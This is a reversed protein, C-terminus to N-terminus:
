VFRVVQEQPITTTPRRFKKVLPPCKDMNHYTVQCDLCYHCERMNIEGTPAIAGIECETACLQCPRGCEKRRKLWDFLRAITPIAIAAGMPCIYRCYVKRSFISALILISAYIVFPWERGFQLLFVTKFPEVEAYQEAVSLSELSWGFLGLLILYKIAWLREHVVYPIPIQPIRLRLALEGLIEQLAGFPCLWGCYIGRGWLLVTAAVFAWLIFIIPDLLFTEWNFNGMLSQVFTLVNVVSLQGKYQWGIFVVTYVLFVMRFNRLFNPYKVLWDQLFIVITLILLSITLINISTSSDEWVQEWPEREEIEPPPEPRDLYKEIPTYTTKFRAFLSDIPGTQRRVLLELEWTQGPDFQHHERVFFVSMEKFHPTGEAYLDNIRYHEIDRFSFENKGQHILIRDFIGGRVYGSGKFSYGNGMIAIASEGPELNEMLWAYESEGLLNKGISPIDLQTYYLGIFRESAEKQSLPESHAAETGAFATEVDENNLQFHRIAGEETLKDWDADEFYQRKINARPITTSAEPDIIGVAVAVKNAARMIALNVVMVTVTAGSVGDIHKIGDSPQGSSIKVQSSVSLDIYQKAFDFLKQEPIGVLLIPEHHELISIGIITGETDIAVLTNVPEGSYAPIPAVDGTEFAYGAVKNAEYITWILPDGAKGSIKSANPFAKKIAPIAPKAPSISLGASFTTTSFFFCIIFILSSRIKLSCDGM